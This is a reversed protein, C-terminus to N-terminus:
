WGNQRRFTDCFAASMLQRGNSGDLWQHVSARFGLALEFVPQSAAHSIGLGLLFHSCTCFMFVMPFMFLVQFSNSVHVSVPTGLIQNRQWRFYIGCLPGLPGLPGFFSGAQSALSCIANTHGTFVFIGTKTRMDWIRM